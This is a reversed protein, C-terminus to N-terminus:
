YFLLKTWLNCLNCLNFFCFRNVNASRPHSEQLRM